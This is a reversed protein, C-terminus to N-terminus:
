VLHAENFYRNKKYVPHTLDIIECFNYSVFGPDMKKHLFNYFM